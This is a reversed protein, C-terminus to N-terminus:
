PERKRAIWGISTVIHGDLKLKIHDHLKYPPLDPTQDLKHDGAHWCFEPIEYGLHRLDDKLQEIDKKRWIVTNGRDVTDELSSLSFETTHIAAGGPKLLEMSNIAFRQGLGISGVHELSCTSWVFDFRDHFEPSIHNMDATQYTVLEDFKKRSILNKKFLDDMSKAHQNSTAWGLELAGALDMDTAVIEVGFSAFYSILPESGAAFVLGRKGPQLMGLKDLSSVIFVFEWQKRHATVDQGLTSTIRAAVEDTAEEATALRGNEWSMRNDLSCKLPSTFEALISPEVYDNLQEIEKKLLSATAERDLISKSLIVLAIIIFLSVINIKKMLHKIFVIIRKM